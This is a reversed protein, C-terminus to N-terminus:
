KRRDKIKMFIKIINMCNKMGFLHYCINILKVKKSVCHELLCINDRIMKEIEINIKGLITYLGIATCFEYAIFSLLIENQTENIRIEECQKIIDIIHKDNKSHTISNKRQRYIYNTDNIFSYNQAYKLIDKCWSIDESLMGIPFKMDNNCVLEKKIVKDTACAKFINNKVAEEINNINNMQRSDSFSNDIEFFKKVGTVLVDEGYCNENINNLFDSTEYFDDSDLFLLYEGLAFKIGCNRASSLGGNKKHIVKIFESYKKQYEDCIYPSSDTSGDDVLIIEYNAYKQKLISNICEELYNEVNYVPVIISFRINRNQSIM